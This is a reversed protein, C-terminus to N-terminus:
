DGGGVRIFRGIGVALFFVALGLLLILAIM